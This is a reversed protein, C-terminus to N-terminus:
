VAGGQVSSKMTARYYGYSITMSIVLLIISLAAGLSYDGNQFAFNYIFLMLVEGNEPNKDLLLYPITFNIFSWVIMLLVIVATVPKLQPLTVYRFTAWRSAGDISAAEYLQEPISQLGAYLMIAAFPFNKWVNVVIMSILANNGILWFMEDTSNIVGLWVLLENIVGTDATFMMRWIYITAVAPAFYPILVLTRATLKGRFSKNLLLATTLGLVYVGITTGFAFLFTEVLSSWFEAGVATNPQFIASYQKLPSIPANMWDIFTSDNVEMFSIVFGWVMPIFHILAMMAISPLLLWYAFRSDDDFGLSPVTLRERLSQTFQEISVSM